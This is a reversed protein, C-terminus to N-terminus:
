QRDNDPHIKWKNNQSWFHQWIFKSKYRFKSCPIVDINVFSKNYFSTFFHWSVNQSFLCFFATFCLLNLFFKVELHHKMVRNSWVKPCNSAVTSVQVGGHRGFHSILNVYLFLSCHYNQPSSVSTSNNVVGSDVPLHLLWCVGIKQQFHYWDRPWMVSLQDMSQGSSWTWTQLCWSCSCRLRTTWTTWDEHQESGSRQLYM